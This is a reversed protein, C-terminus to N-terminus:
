STKRHLYDARRQQAIEIESRPTKQQKKIFASTLVLLTSGDFFGLYRSREGGQQVRIEWLEDTGSLKKFYQQPVIQLRKVLRFTWAAKQAHRDSLSDLFEEIPCSGNKTRYFEIARM